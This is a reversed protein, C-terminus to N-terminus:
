RHKLKRWQAKGKVPKWYSWFESDLPQEKGLRYARAVSADLGWEKAVEADTYTRSLDPKDNDLPRDLLDDLISSERTVPESDCDRDVKNDLPKDLIQRAKITELEQHLMEWKKELADIRDLTNDLEQRADAIPKDLSIRLANVVFQNLSINQLRAAEKIEELLEGENDLRLNLQKRDRM